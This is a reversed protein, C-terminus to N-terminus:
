QRFLRSCLEQADCIDDFWGQPVNRLNPRIAKIGQANARSHKVARDGLDPMANGADGGFYRYAEIALTEPEYEMIIVCGSPKAALKSHVNIRARKGGIIKTKLQIHRVIGCAEIVLDYGGDDVESHLVEFDHIGANWLTRGIEALFAHELIKELSHSYINAPANM